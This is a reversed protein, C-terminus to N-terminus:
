WGGLVYRLSKGVLVALVAIAIGFSWAIQWAGPRLETAKDTISAIMRQKTETSISPAVNLDDVM